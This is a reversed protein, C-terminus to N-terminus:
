KVGAKKYVLVRGKGLWDLQKEWTTDRTGGNLVCLARVLPQPLRTIHSPDEGLEDTLEFPNAPAPTFRTTLYVRERAVRFLHHVFAGWERVPVHELVERCVVVDSHDRYDLGSVDARSLYEDAGWVLGDPLYPDIGYADVGRERLMRVLYGPGCGVDLVSKGHCLAALVDPHKAEIGVRNAYDAYGQTVPDFPVAEQVRADTDFVELGRWAELDAWGRLLATSSRTEGCDLYHVKVGHQRCFDREAPPIGPIQWDLGKVYHRPVLAQLAHLTTRYTTTRAVGKVGLVVAARDAQSLLEARKTQPSVQVILECPPDVRGAQQLYAVHRDHLPDFVGDALTVPTTM